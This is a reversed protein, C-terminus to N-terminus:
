KAIRGTSESQVAEIYNTIDDWDLSIHEVDEKLLPRGSQVEIFQLNTLAKMAHLQGAEIQIVDGVKVHRVLNNVILEGEGELITWCESRYQHRQYSLNKGKRIKIHKVLVDKGDVTDIHELVHSSGWHREEVMPWMGGKVTSNLEYSSQKNAVLIGDYSAAVIVNEVDVVHIPLLLENLIHTNECQGKMVGIGIQESTLKRALRDWSGIDQWPGRYHYVIGHQMWEMVADDFSISDVTDYQAVFQEYQLPLAYRRLMQLITKIQFVYVGSNWLAGQHILQKTMEFSPKEIFQQITCINSQANDPAVEIYGYQPAIYTPTLGVLAIDADYQMALDPLKQVAQLFSPEVLIDVPLIAVWEDDACHELDKAYLTALCVAAFTDKQMPEEVINIDSECQTLVLDSQQANTVFMAQKDLKLSKLQKWLIQISSELVGEENQFLQLFQKSRVSNSLPWLGTGSGGSLLIYKM